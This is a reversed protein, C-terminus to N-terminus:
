NASTIHAIYADVQEPTYSLLRGMEHERESCVGYSDEELLVRLRFAQKEYGLRYVIRTVYDTGDRTTQNFQLLKFEDSLFNGLDPPRFDVFLAVHKKGHKMLQFEIGEHPGIEESIAM